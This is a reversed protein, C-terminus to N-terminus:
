LQLLMLIRSLETKLYVTYKKIVRMATAGAHPIRILGTVLNSPGLRAPNAMVDNTGIFPDLLMGVLVNM